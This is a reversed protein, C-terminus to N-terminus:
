DELTPPTLGFWFTQQGDVPNANINQRERKGFIVHGLNLTEFNLPMQVNFVPCLLIQVDRFM